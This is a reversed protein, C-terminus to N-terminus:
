STFTITGHGKVDALLKHKMLAFPWSLLSCETYHIAASELLMSHQLNSCMQQLETVQAHPASDVVSGIVHQMMNAAKKLLGEM